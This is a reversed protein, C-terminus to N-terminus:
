QPTYKKRKRHTKRLRIGSIQAPFSVSYIVFYINSLPLLFGFNELSLRGTESQGGAIGYSNNQSKDGTAANLPQSNVV